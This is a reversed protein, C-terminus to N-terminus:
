VEIIDITTNTANGGEVIIGEVGGATPGINVSDTTPPLVSFPSYTPPSFSTIPTNPQSFSTPISTTLSVSIDNENDIINDQVKRYKHRNNDNYVNDNNNDNDNSNISGINRTIFRKKIWYISCLVLFYLLISYSSGIFVYFLVERVSISKKKHKKNENKKLKSCNVDTYASNCILIYDSVVL